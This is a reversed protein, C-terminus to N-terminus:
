CNAGARSATTRVRADPEIVKKLATSPTRSRHVCCRCSLVEDEVMEAADSALDLMGISTDM